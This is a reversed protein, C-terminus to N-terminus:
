EVICVYDNKPRRSALEPVIKLVEDWDASSMANLNMKGAVQPQEMMLLFWYVPAVAERLEEIKYGPTNALEPHGKLEDVKNWAETTEM